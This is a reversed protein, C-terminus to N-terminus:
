FKIENHVKMRYKNSQIFKKIKSNTTFHLTENFINLWKQYSTYEQSLPGPNTLQDPFIYFTCLYRMFFYEYIQKKDFNINLKKFNIIANKYEKINKPHYNFNYSIHPNNISANIVPIKFYAYELAITGYVTLVLDIGESILQSHSINSNILTFRPYKKLFFNM